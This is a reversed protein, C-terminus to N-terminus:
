KGEARARAAKVAADMAAQVTRTVQEREAESCISQAAEPLSILSFLARQQTDMGSHPDCAQEILHQRFEEVAEPPTHKGAETSM